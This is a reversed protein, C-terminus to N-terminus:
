TRIKGRSKARPPKGSVLPLGRLLYSNDVRWYSRIGDLQATRIVRAGNESWWSVRPRGIESERKLELGECDVAAAGLPSIVDMSYLLWRSPVFCSGAHGLYMGMSTINVNSFDVPFGEDASFPALYLHGRRSLLTCSRMYLQLALNEAPSLSVDLFTRLVKVEAKTPESFSAPAPCSYAPCDDDVVSKMAAIFHGDTPGVLEDLFTPWLRACLELRGDGGQAWEAKGKTNELAEKCEIGSERLTLKLKGAADQLEMDERNHVFESVVAENEEPSFTCTSYLLLGQPALLKYASELLVGQVRAAQEVRKDSWSVAQGRRLVSELSCPADLLVVDFQNAWSRQAALNQLSSQVVIANPYGWREINEGLAKKRSGKDHDAVVLVSRSAKRIADLLQTSKGGPSSCADLVLFQKTRGKELAKEAIEREFLGVVAQASADQSYFVGSDHAINGAGVSVTESFFGQGSWPISSQFPPQGKTKSGDKLPHNRFAKLRPRTNLAKKFYHFEQNPLLRAFKNLFSEPLGM